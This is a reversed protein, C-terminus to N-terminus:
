NYTAVKINLLTIEVRKTLNFFFSHIVFPTELTKFKKLHIITIPICFNEFQLNLECINHM